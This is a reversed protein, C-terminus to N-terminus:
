QVFIHQLFSPIRGAMNPVRGYILTWFLFHNKLVNLFATFVQYFRIILFVLTYSFDSVHTPCLKLIYGLM